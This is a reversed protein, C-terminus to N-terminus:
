IGFDVTKAAKGSSRKTGSKRETSSRNSPTRTSPSSRSRPPETKASASTVSAAGPPPESSAPAAIPKEVETGPETPTPASPPAAAPEPQASTTRDVKASSNSLTVVGTVGLAIVLAGAAGLVVPLTARRQKGPLLTRALPDSTSHERLNFAEAPGVVTPVDDRVIALQGAAHLPNSDLGASSARSVVPMFGSTVGLAVALSDTFEQASQFRQEPERASARKWWADFGPPVGTFVNSPVPLPDYMIKGLVEGLGEGCFPLDGTMVEFVIVGLSWLDSRHDIQRTGRAQEPSMYFPTGVLSGTKTGTDELRMSPRKAIGFDLVKATEGEEERALFVNEPKLDRHVIGAAHARTLARAVQSVITFAEAAPLRVLRNLRQSLDEGQLYEMAIYPIDQWVGYDLIQVVHRSKLHAAAKAEREFRARADDREKGRPDILKVACLVDLSTHEALWVAGMGGKGLERVLRFRDAVILGEVFQV